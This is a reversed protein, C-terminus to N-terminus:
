GLIIYQLPCRLRSFASFYNRFYKFENRIKLLCGIGTWPKYTLVLRSGVGRSCVRILVLNPRRRGRLWAGAWEILLLLLDGLTLWNRAIVWLIHRMKRGRPIIISPHRNASDLLLRNKFLLKFALHFSELVFQLTM